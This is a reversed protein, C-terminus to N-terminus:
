RRRRSSGAAHHSLIERLLFKLMGGAYASEKPFFKGTKVTYDQLEKLDRFQTVSRGTAGTDVLDVLNVFKGQFTQRLFM